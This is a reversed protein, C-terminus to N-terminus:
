SRNGDGYVWLCKLIVIINVKGTAKIKRDIDRKKGSISLLAVLLIPVSYLKM